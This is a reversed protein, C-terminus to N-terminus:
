SKPLLNNKTLFPPGKNFTSFCSSDLRQLNQSPLPSALTDCILPCDTGSGLDRSTWLIPRKGSSGRWVRTEWPEGSPDLKQLELWIRRSRNDQSWPLHAVAPRFYFVTFKHLSEAHVMQRVKEVTIFSFISLLINWLVSLSFLFSFHAIQKQM